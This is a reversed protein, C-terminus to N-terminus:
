ASFWLFDAIAQVLICPCLLLHHLALGFRVYVVVQETLCRHVLDLHEILDHGVTILLLVRLVEHSFQEIM